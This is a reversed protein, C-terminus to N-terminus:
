ARRLGAAPELLLARSSGEIDQRAVTRGPENHRVETVSLSYVRDIGELPPPTMTVLWFGFMVALAAVSLCLLLTVTALLSPGQVLTRGAARLDHFFNM